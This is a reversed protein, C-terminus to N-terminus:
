KVLTLKKDAKWIKYELTYGNPVYVVIPLRSNYRVQKSEAHVNKEISKNDLCGMATSMSEGKTEFNYYSYGWGEVSKEDLNGILSFHNCSDVNMKKGAFIEVSYDEENPLSKLTIVKQKYGEKAKPYMSYDIKNAQQAFTFTAIILALVSFLKTM